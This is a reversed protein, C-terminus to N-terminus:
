SLKNLYPMDLRKEFANNAKMIKHWSFHNEIPNTTNFLWMQPKSILYPKAFDGSDGEDFCGAQEYLVGFKAFKKELKEFMQPMIALGGCQGKVITGLYTYGLRFAFRKFFRCMIESESSEIYGSQIIFGIFRNKAAQPLTYLFELTGSPIAHIYNPTIVIIREFGRIYEILWEQNEQTIARIECPEKMKSVFAKALFYSGSKQVNGKSSGNLIITKM